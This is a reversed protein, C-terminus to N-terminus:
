KSVGGKNNQKRDAKNLMFIKQLRKTYIRVGKEGEDYRYSYVFYAILLFSTVMAIYLMVVTITLMSYNISTLNNIIYEFNYAAVLFLIIISAITVAVATKWMQFRVYDGKYFKAKPLDLVGEHKEYMATRAMLRIKRKNIM